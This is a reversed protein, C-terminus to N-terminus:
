ITNTKGSVFRKWINKLARKDRLIIIKWYFSSSVLSPRVKRYTEEERRFACVDELSWNKVLFSKQDFADSQTM